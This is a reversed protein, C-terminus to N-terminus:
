AGLPNSSPSPANTLFDYSFSLVGGGPGVAISQMIASGDTAPGNGLNTLAGSSLGNGTSLGLFLELQTESVASQGRAAGGGIMAFVVIAALWNRCQQLGPM